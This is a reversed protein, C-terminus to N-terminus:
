TTTSYLHSANLSWAHAYVTALHAQSSRSRSLSFSKISVKRATQKTRAMTSPKIFSKISSHSPSQQDIPNDFTSTHPHLLFTPLLPLPWYKYGTASALSRLKARKSLIHYTSPILKFEISFSTTKVSWDSALSVDFNLRLFVLTLLASPHRLLVHLPRVIHSV